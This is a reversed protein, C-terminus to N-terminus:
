KGNAAEKDFEQLVEGLTPETERMGKSVNEDFIRWATCSPCTSDYHSCREGWSQKVLEEGQTNRWDPLVMDLAECIFRADVLGHTMRRRMRWYFEECADMFRQEETAEADLKSEKKEVVM